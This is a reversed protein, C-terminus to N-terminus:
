GDYKKAKSTLLIDLGGYDVHSDVVIRSLTPCEIGKLIVGKSVMPHKM